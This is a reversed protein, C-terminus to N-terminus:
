PAAALKDAVEPKVEYEQLVPAAVCVILGVVAPVYVTVTVLALPHVPLADRATVTPDVVLEVTLAVCQGPM